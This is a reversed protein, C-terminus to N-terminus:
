GRLRKRKKKETEGVEGPATNCAEAGRAAGGFGLDQALQQIM